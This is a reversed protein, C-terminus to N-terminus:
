NLKDKLLDRKGTAEGLKEAVITKKEIYDEQSIEGAKFKVDLQQYMENVNEIYEDFIKIKGEIELREKEEQSIAPVQLPEPMPKSVPEKQGVMPLKKPAAKVKGKIFIKPLALKPPSLKGKGLPTPRAPSKKASPVEWVEGETEKKVEEKKLAVESTDEKIIPEIEKELKDKKKKIAASSKKRKKKKNNKMKLYVM